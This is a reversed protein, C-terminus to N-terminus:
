QEVLQGNQLSYSVQVPVSPCCDPDMEGHVLMDVVITEADIAVDQILVNPGLHASGAPVPKGEEEVFGALTFDSADTGSSSILVAAAAERGDPLHDCAVHPTLMVDLASDPQRISYFGDELQIPEGKVIEYESNLLTELTLVSLDPEATCVAFADGLTVALFQDLVSSVQLTYSAAVAPVDFIVTGTLKQQPEDYLIPQAYRAVMEQSGTTGIVAIANGENGSQDILGFWGADMLDAADGRLSALAFDVLIFFRWQAPYAQIQHGELTIM